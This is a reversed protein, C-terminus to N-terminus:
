TNQWHAGDFYWDWIHNDNLYYVDTDSQSLEEVDVPSGASAPTGSSNIAGNAWSSTYLWNYIQGNTGAYYVSLYGNPAEDAALGSEPAVRKGKGLKSNSWGSDYAWTYIQNNTGVYFVDQDGNTQLIDAIQSGDAAAEGDGIAGNLWTSTNNIWNYVQGNTGVYFVQQYGNTQLDTALGDTPVAAEGSLETNTWSGDFSWIWIQDDAGVYFVTTDDGDEIVSVNTGKAAREGNAIIGDEWEETSAVYLYNYIQRNKGVYYVSINGDPAQDAAIGTGAKPPYNGYVGNSSIVTSGNPGNNSFGLDGDFFYFVDTDGDSLALNALPTIAPLTGSSARSPSAGSSAQAAGALGLLVMTGTLVVGAITRLFRGITLSKRM